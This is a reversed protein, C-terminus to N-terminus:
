PLNPWERLGASDIADNHGDAASVIGGSDVKLVLTPCIDAVSASCDNAADSRIDVASWDSNSTNSTPLSVLAPVPNEGPKGDM